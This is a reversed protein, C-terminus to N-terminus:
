LEEQLALAKREANERLSSLTKIMEADSREHEAQASRRDAGSIDMERGCALMLIEASCLQDIRQVCPVSQVGGPILWNSASPM